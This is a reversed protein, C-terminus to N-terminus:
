QVFSASKSRSTSDCSGQAEGTYATSMFPLTRQAPPSSIPLSSSSHLHALLGDLWHSLCRRIDRRTQLLAFSVPKSVVGYGVVYFYRIKSESREKFSVQSGYPFSSLASSMRDISRQLYTSVHDDEVHDEPLLLEHTIESTSTVTTTNVGTSATIVNTDYIEVLNDEPTPVLHDQPQEPTVPSATSSSKEEPLLHTGSFDLSKGKRRIVLFLGTIDGYTTQRPNM